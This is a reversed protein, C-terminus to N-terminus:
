ISNVSESTINFVEDRSRDRYHKKIDSEMIQMERYIEDKNELSNTMAYEYSACLALYVHFLGAFGPMKTTDTTTFYSGERNIFVKLGAAVSYSPICDLFIGNATKDYRSPTGTQNLGSYFGEMDEDSQQDVPYIEVYTGSPDKIMVKYVDLILNGQEDTTFTYDRQSAVLATTIFPYDTHNSDDFQWKGSAKFIISFTKDLADNVMATFEKLLQTSNTIKGDGLKCLREIKQLIGRKNTTDNYQTSM